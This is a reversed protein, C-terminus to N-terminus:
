YALSRIDLRWGVIGQSPLVASESAFAAKLNEANQRMTQLYYDPDLAKQSGMEIPDFISVQIGLDRAIAAFADGGSPETLITKLNSDQVTQMVRKVDEPAASEEPVEVLFEAKLGYSDAFYAAFDHLVVFSKGKYPSLKRTIESDLSQLKKIYAEANAAYIQSGEPDLNILGDRITAVQQMARKPDLWIHPDFEGHEHEHKEHGHGHKGEHEHEHDDKAKLTAVGKSTDIKVLDSNGANKVLGELFEEIGLGNMVLVDAKALAQADQPRAQYDHSGATPPILPTVVARDGAVALTFQTVPLITTVVKLRETQASAQSGAVLAACLVLSLQGLARVIM